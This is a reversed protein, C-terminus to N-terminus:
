LLEKISDADNEGLHEALYIFYNDGPQVPQEFNEM